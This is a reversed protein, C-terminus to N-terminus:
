TAEPLHLIARTDNLWPIAYEYGNIGILRLVSHLPSLPLQVEILGPTFRVLSEGALFNRQLHDFSSWAFGPLRRAFSRLIAAALPTLALDVAQPLDPVIALARLLAAAPKARSAFEDPPPANSPLGAPPTGAADLWYDFLTDRTLWVDHTYVETAVREVLPPHHSLWGTSELADALAAGWASRAAATAATGAMWRADDPPADLGMTLWLVSDDRSQQRLARGLCKMVLWGYRLAADRSDGLARHLGLDILGPLFLFLGGCETRLWPSSATKASTPQPDIVSAAQDHWASTPTDRRGDAFALLADAAAFVAVPPYGAARWALWLRLRNHDSLWRREARLGAGPWLTLLREIAATTAPGPNAPRGLAHLLRAADAPRLASLIAERRGATALHLLMDGASEGADHLAQRVAADTPLSRLGAFPEYYWRGWAAGDLLDLIFRATYAAYDDFVVVNGGVAGGAM